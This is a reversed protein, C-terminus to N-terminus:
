IFDMEGGYVPCKFILKESVKSKINDGVIIEGKSDFTFGQEILM